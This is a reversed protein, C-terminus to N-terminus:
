QSPKDGKKALIIMGDATAGTVAPVESNKIKLVAIAPLQDDNSKSSGPNNLDSRIQGLISQSNKNRIDIVTADSAIPKGPVIDQAANNPMNNNAKPVWYVDVKDGANITMGVAKVADVPISVQREEPGIILPSDGLKQPLIQEGKFIQTMAVKGIIGKPDQLSNPQKSGLPLTIYGLDRSDLLRYPPIDQSAVLVKETPRNQVAWSKLGITSGAAIGIALFIIIFRKVSFGTPTKLKLM